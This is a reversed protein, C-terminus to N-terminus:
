SESRDTEMLQALRARSRSLRSRVTGVPIDLAVSVQQYSLGEWAVLTLIQRDRHSLGAAADLLTAMRREDDVREAVDDAHDAEDLAVARLRGRLAGQRRASRLHNRCVNAAVGYLWPLLDGDHAAARARIRWVELFTTAMADEAVVWSATRRFCFTYVRDAYRDFVEGM